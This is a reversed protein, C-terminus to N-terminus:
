PKNPRRYKLYAMVLYTIIAGIIAGIGGISFKCPWFPCEPWIRWFPELLAILAEM